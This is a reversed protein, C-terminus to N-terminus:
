ASWGHHKSSGADRALVEAAPPEKLHPKSQLLCLLCRAVPLSVARIFHPPSCRSRLGLSSSRRRPARLSSWGHAGRAHATSGAAPGSTHQYRCRQDARAPFSSVAAAGDADGADSLPAKSPTEKERLSPLPRGLASCRQSCPHWPSVRGVQFADMKRLTIINRRASLRCNGQWLGLGNTRV